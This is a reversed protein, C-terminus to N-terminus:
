AGPSGYTGRFDSWGRIWRARIKVKFSSSEFDWDHLVNPKERWYSRVNHKSPEALLFWADPDTLYPWSVLRLGEDKMANTARNATDPRDASNLLEKGLWKLETPVLLIKPRWHILKGADDTTDGIDNLADRLSQVSLDAATTLENQETGGGVLPHDTAFLEKGDPSGTTSSFGNNFLNAHDVNYTYTMSQGLARAADSVVEEQEDDLAEKSTRFALEYTDAQYTKDFGPALDDYAVNEAELKVPVTGFSAVTTTRVFPKNGMDKLRVIQSVIGEEIDMEDFLVDELFALRSLYLDPLTTRFTAM